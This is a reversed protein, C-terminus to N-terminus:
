TLNIRLEVADVDGLKESTEWKEGCDNCFWLRVELLRKAEVKTEPQAIERRSAHACHVRECAPCWIREVTMDDEAGM